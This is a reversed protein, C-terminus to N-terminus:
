SEKLLFLKRERKRIHKRGEMRIENREEKRRGDMEKGGEDKRREVWTREEL